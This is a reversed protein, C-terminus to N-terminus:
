IFSDLLIKTYKTISYLVNPLCIFLISNLLIFKFIKLEKRKSILNIILVMISLNLVINFLSGAIINQASLGFLPNLSKGTFLLIYCAISSNLSSLVKFGLISEQPLKLKLNFKMKKNKFAIIEM